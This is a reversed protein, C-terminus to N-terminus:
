PRPRGPCLQTNHGGHEHSLGRPESPPLCLPQGTALGGGLPPPAPGGSPLQARMREPLPLCLCVRQGADAERGAALSQPFPWCCGKISCQASHPRGVHSSDPLKWFGRSPATQRLPCSPTLTGLSRPASNLAQTGLPGGGPSHWDGGGVPRPHPARRAPRGLPCPEAWM